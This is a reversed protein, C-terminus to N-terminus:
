TFTTALFALSEKTRIIVAARKAIGDEAVSGLNKLFYIDPFYLLALSKKKIFKAFQIDPFGFFFDTLFIKKETENIVNRDPKQFPGVM